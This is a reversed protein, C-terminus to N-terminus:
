DDKLQDWWSVGTVVPLTFDRCQIGLLSFKLEAWCIQFTSGIKMGESWEIADLLCHWKVRVVSTFTFPVSLVRWWRFGTWWTTITFITVTGITIVAVCVSVTMFWTSMIVSTSTIRWVSSMWIFFPIVSIDAVSSTWTRLGRSFRFLRGWSGRIINHIWRSCCTVKGGGLGNM